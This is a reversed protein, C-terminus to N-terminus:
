VFFIIYINKPYWESGDNTIIKLMVADAGKLLFTIEGTEKRVIIGMRKTASSFPFVQLIDYSKETGNENLIMTHLDRKKLAVGVSETFKVLAVEDPSSAQYSAEGTASDLVPTVNHCLAIARVCDLTKVKPRNRPKTLKNTKALDTSLAESLSLLDDERFFAKGCHLKKFRMENQTLTGTKDTLLYNVRGLEEPVNSNRVIAGPMNKDRNIVFAYFLKAMDLNVRMSIPIIASFLIMFRVLYVYWMGSFGQAVVMLVSLAALVAFLVKSLTNIEEETKGRKSQPAMRNLATRTERGTYVVAGVVQGTAVVTSSWLMNEVTIPEAEDDENDDDDGDGVRDESDSPDKPQFKGTFSYIDRGPPEAFIRARYVALERMGLGQTHILPRRLKWDTEGDLQDTRIFSAGSKDTTKLLAMDAPVRCNTDVVILYGM